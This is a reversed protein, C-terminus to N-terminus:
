SDSTYQITGAAVSTRSTGNKKADHSTSYRTMRRGRVPKGRGIRLDTTKLTFRM